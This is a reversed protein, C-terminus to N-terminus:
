RSRYYSLALVTIAVHYMLHTLKDLYDGDVDSLM